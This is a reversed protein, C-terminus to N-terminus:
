FPFRTIKDHSLQHDTLAPLGTATILAFLCILYDSYLDLQPKNM